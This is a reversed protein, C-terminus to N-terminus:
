QPDLLALIGMLGMNAFVMPALIPAGRLFREVVVAGGAGLDFLVHLVLGLPGVALLAGMALSYAMLDARGPSRLLGLALAVVAGFIGAVTPVWLWPNTFGGRMHGFVNSILAVLVGM